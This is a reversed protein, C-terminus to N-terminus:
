EAIVGSEESKGDKSAASASEGDKASDGSEGSAASKSESDDDESDGTAGSAASETEGDESDGTKGIGGFIASEEAAAAAAAIRESEPIECVMQPVKYLGRAIERLAIVVSKDEGEPVRSDGRRIIQQARLGTHYALNFHNPCHEICDDTTTRSM